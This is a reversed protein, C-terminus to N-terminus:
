VDNKYDHEKGWEENRSDFEPLEELEEATRVYNVSLPPYGKKDGEVIVDYPDRDTAYVAVGEEFSYLEIEYLEAVEQAEERTRALAMLPQEAIEAPMTDDGRTKASVLFPFAPGVGLKCFAIYWGTLGTVIVILFVATITMMKKNM